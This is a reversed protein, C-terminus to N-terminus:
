NWGDFVQGSTNRGGPPSMYNNLLTLAEPTYAESAKQM